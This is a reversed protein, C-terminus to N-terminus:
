DGKPDFYAVVDPNFVNKMLGGGKTDKEAFAKAKELTSHTNIGVQFYFPSWWRRRQVEFGGYNDTVVRYTDKKM